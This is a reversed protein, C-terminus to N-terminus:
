EQFDSCDSFFVSHFFSVPVCFDKMEKTHTFTIWATSALKPRQSSQCSSITGLSPEMLSRLSPRRAQHRRETRFQIWCPVRRRFPQFSHTSYFLLLFELNQKSNTLNVFLFIFFFVMDFEKKKTGELTELEVKMGSIQQNVQELQESVDDKSSKGKDKSSIQKELTKRTARLTTLERKLFKKREKSEKTENSAQNSAVLAEQKHELAAEYSALQAKISSIMNNSGELQEEVKKKQAAPVIKIMTSVGAKIKEEKALEEKLHKIKEEIVPISM